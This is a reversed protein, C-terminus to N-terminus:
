RAGGSGPKPPAATKHALIEACRAAAEKVLTGMKPHSPELDAPLGEATLTESCVPGISAIMTRALAARVAGEIDLRRAVALANDVQARSTFLAVEVDGAALARLALALPRTDEPLSWRYVPVTTVRARREELGAYLEVPTAGYEQVYVRKGELAHAADLTALLERWTNPEPVTTFGTVGLERLAAVPKPGRAVVTVDALRLALERADMEPAIAKALARTGVGTLLLLVDIEGHRLARAFALAEDDRGLEVERMSPASIAVGGHRTILSVMEAARRSEFAVVRRGDFSV